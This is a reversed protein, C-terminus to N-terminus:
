SQSFELVVWDDDGLHYANGCYPCNHERTADFSGGCSKCEVRKISFNSNKLSNINRCVTMTFPEAKQSIKGAKEYFVDTYVTLGVYCYLGKTEFSNLKIGGKYQVDIIDKFTNQMPPGEYIALNQYDDCFIMIKLLSIIEGVFYEYSFNNDIASMLEPLRKQAKLNPALYPMYKAANVVLSGIKSIAWGLYGAIAGYFAGGIIRFFIDTVLNTLDPNNGNSFNAALSYVTFGVAGIFAGAVLWISIKHSLSKKTEAYDPLVFFNTVKPFLDSMIFKTGCSPCGTLLTRIDSIAGCNPCCYSFNTNQNELRTIMLYLIQTDKKRLKRKNNIRYDTINEYSRYVIQSKYKGPDNVSRAIGINDLHEGRLNYVSDITVGKSEIRKRQLDFAYRLDLSAIIPSNGTHSWQSIEYVFRNYVGENSTNSLMDRENNMIMIMELVFLRTKVVRGM